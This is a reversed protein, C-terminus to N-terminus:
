IKIQKESVLTLDRYATKRFICLGQEDTCLTTVDKLQIHWAEAQFLLDDALINDHL